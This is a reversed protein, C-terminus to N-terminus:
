HTDTDCTFTYFNLRLFINIAIRRYVKHTPPAPFTVTATEREHALQLYSILCGALRLARCTDHPITKIDSMPRGMKCDSLQSMGTTGWYAGTLGWCFRRQIKEGVAIGEM